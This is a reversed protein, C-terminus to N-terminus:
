LQRLVEADDFHETHDAFIQYDEHGKGAILVVDGPQDAAIFAHKIAEKRDEVIHVEPADSPPNEGTATGPIGELIDEIIEMPLESRPNDSTIILYDANNFAAKGMLPRKRRDRDGGAGFVIFLRGTTIERLTRLVNEIADPTHAYDVYFSAVSKQLKVLELRGKVPNESEIADIAISMEIGANLALGLATLSNYINHRGLLKLNVTQSKGKYTLTFRTANVTLEPNTFCLDADSTSGYTLVKGGSLKIQIALQQGFKCDINVVAPATPPLFLLSKAKFYEEMTGHYDLHDQTLNTFAVGEFRTGYTRKQILAHSSVEMVCAKCGNEYMIALSDQLEIPGPTTNNAPLMSSTNLSNASQEPSLPYLSNGITGLIGCPYNAKTLIARLLNATTTKGNTGTIAFVKLKHSPNDAQACARRALEFRVDRVKTWKINEPIDTPRNLESIIERAGAAIAAPIFSNGNQKEGTVAAFTDGLKLKRSDCETRTKTFNNM